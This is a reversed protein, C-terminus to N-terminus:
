LLLMTDAIADEEAEAALEALLFADAIADEEAEAALDALMFADAIADMDALNNVQAQAGVAFKSVQTKM